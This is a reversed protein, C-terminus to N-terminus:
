EEDEPPEPWAEYVTGNPQKKAQERLQRRRKRELKELRQKELAAEIRIHDDPSPKNHRVFPALANKNISIEIVGNNYLFEAGFIIDIHDADVLFFSTSFFRTGVNTVKWKLTIAGECHVEEGNVALMIPARPDEKIKYELGLERVKRTSVWNGYLCGTDLLAVTDQLRKSYDVVQIHLLSNRINGGEWSETYEEFSMDSEAEAYSEQQCIQWSCISEEDDPVPISYLILDTTAAIGDKADEKEQWSM